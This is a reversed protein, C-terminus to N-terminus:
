GVSVSTPWVMVGGTVTSISSVNPLTTEFPKPLKVRLVDKSVPARNLRAVKSVSTGKEGPQQAAAPLALLVAAAALAAGSFRTAPRPTSIRSSTM